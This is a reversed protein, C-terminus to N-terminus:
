PAAHSVAEAPKSVILDLAVTLSGENGSFDLDAGMERARERMNALGRGPRFFEAMGSGNDSVRIQLRHEAAIFRASIEICDAGSHRLANNLAEQVIRLIHLVKRPELHPASDLDVQWRLLTARPGLRRSLRYRMDALADAVSPETHSLTDVVLHLDSGIDDLLHAIEATTLGGQQARIRLSGLQSGFGDHIDRLLEEREHLRMQEILNAQLAARDREAAARAIVKETEDVVIGEWITSGDGQKRPRSEVSITRYDDGSGLRVTMSFPLRGAVSASSQAIWNARDEEHILIDLSDAPKGEIGHQGILECFRDSAFYFVPISAGPHLVVSFTGIPINRTVEYAVRHALERELASNRRMSAGYANAMLLVLSVAMAVVAAGFAYPLFYITEFNSVGSVKLWDSLGGAMLLIMLAGVIYDPLTRTRFSRIVLAFTVFFTALWWPAYLLLTVVRSSDSIWILAPAVVIFALSFRTIWRHSKGLLALATLVFLPVCILRVCFIAWNLVDIPFVSSTIFGNMTALANFISTGGFWIYVSERRLMLGLALAIVGVVGSLWTMGVLLDHQLLRKASYLPQIQAIDGVRVASLGNAQRKSAYITFDLTNRGQKWLSPPPVFLQPLHLCRLEELRGLACQGILNGNLAFSGSLSMKPVLVALPQDPAGPLDITLRYRVTSGDPLFDDSSLIHPLTVKRTSRHHPGSAELEASPVLVNLPTASQAAPATSGPRASGAAILPEAALFSSATLSGLVFCMAALWRLILTRM